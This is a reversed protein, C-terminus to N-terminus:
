DPSARSTTSHYKKWKGAYEVEFELWVHSCFVSFWWCSVIVFKCWFVPLIFTFFSTKIVNVTWCNLFWCWFWPQWFSCIRSNVDCGASSVKKCDAVSACQQRSEPITGQKKLCFPLMLQLFSLQGNIYLAQLVIIELLMIHTAILGMQLIPAFHWMIQSSSGVRQTDVQKM